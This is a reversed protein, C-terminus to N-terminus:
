LVEFIPLMELLPSGQGLHTKGWQGVIGGALVGQLGGAAVEGPHRGPMFIATFTLRTEPAGGSFAMVVWGDSTAASVFSSM